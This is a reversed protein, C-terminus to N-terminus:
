NQTNTWPATERPPCDGNKLTEIKRFTTCRKYRGGRPISLLVAGKRIKVEVIEVDHSFVNVTALSSTENSRSNLNSKRNNLAEMHELFSFTQNFVRRHVLWKFSTKKTCNQCHKGSLNGGFIVPLQSSLPLLASEWNCIHSEARSLSGGVDWLRSAFVMTTMEFIRQALLCISPSQM